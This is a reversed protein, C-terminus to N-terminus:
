CGASAQWVMRSLATSWQTPTMSAAVSDCAPAVVAQDSPLWRCEIAISADGDILLYHRGTMAPAATAADAPTGIDVRLAQYSGIKVVRPEGAHPSRAKMVEGYAQLAKPTLPQAGDFGLSKSDSFAIIANPNNHGSHPTFGIGGARDAVFSALGVAQEVHGALPSFNSPVDFRYRAAEDGFEVWRTAPAGGATKEASAPAPGVENGCAFLSVALLAVSSPQQM